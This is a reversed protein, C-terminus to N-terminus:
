RVIVRHTKFSNENKIEIFYMGSKLSLKSLEIIKGNQLNEYIVQGKSSLIRLEFVENNLGTVHLYGSSSVPNPSITLKANTSSGEITISKTESYEFSGDFDVQKLRYYYIGEVLGEDVYNYSITNTSHGNGDVIEIVTWTLADVSRQVEFYDNNIESATIWKLLVSHNNIADLTFSILEIPLLGSRNEESYDEIEGSGFNLCNNSSTFATESVVARIKYSAIAGNPITVPVAVEVVTNATVVLDSGTYFQDIADDFSGNDDWDFWLGYYVQKNDTNSNLLLNFNHTEGPYIYDVSPAILGDDEMDMDANSNSEESCEEDPKLPGLWVFDSSPTSPIVTIASSCNSTLDGRDVGDIHLLYDEVEGGIALAISREDVATNIDDSLSTSMIRFRAFTPGSIIDTGCSLGSLDWILSFAARLSSNRATSGLEKSSFELSEFIGNQNLDIWAYLYVNQPSLNTYDLSVDLTSDATIIFPYYPLGDEDDIGNGDDGSNGEYGADSTVQDLGNLETDILSGLYFLSDYTHAASLTGYSNPADGFDCNSVVVSVDDLAQCGNGNTVTVSYLTTVVPSVLINETTEGTSWLYTGGGSATLTVSQGICINEDQGANALPNMNVDVSVNVQETRVCGNMTVTLTYTLDVPPTTVPNSSTNDDLFLNPTWLYTAGVPGSPSGGLTVSGGQCVPRDGGGDAFVAETIIIDQTYNESCGDQTVTLTITKTGASAWSVTESANSSSAISADGSFTWAYTAGIIAPNATILISELACRTAPADIGSVIVLCLVDIIVEATDTLGGADTIIYYFTDLGVYGNAPTYNIFDDTSDAPTGNNNIVIIGGQTSSNNSVVASNSGASSILINSEADSDGIGLDLVDIAIAVDKNTSIVDDIAIPPTNCAGFDLSDLYAATAAQGVPSVVNPVGNADVGGTLTDNQIDATTFGGAAELADPCGDGDSDLDLYDPIGDNDTDLVCPVEFLVDTYDGIGFGSNDFEKKWNMDIVSVDDYIAIATARPDSSSAVSGLFQIYIGNMSETLFTSPHLHTAFVESAVFQVGGTGDIDRVALGYDIVAPTTTGVEFFELRLGAYEGINQIGLLNAGIRTSSWNITGVGGVPLSTVTIRLDYLTGLYDISNAYTVTQGVGSGIITPATITTHIKALEGVGPYILADLSDGSTNCFEDVDLIGDNDDDLDCVDSVGDSDTDLNGSAVPDCPDTSGTCDVSQTAAEQSDGIGQTPGASPTGDVNSSTGLNDQVPGATGTYVAGTNGGDITSTVLDAFIYTGGGEIADPCGDGDSDLDLYDATGDGDTDACAMVQVEAISLIRAAGELRVVVTDGVIPTPLTITTSAGASGQHNYTFVVDGNSDKVEVIFDDLRNSCCDTRNWVVIENISHSADLALKWWPDDTIQTHTVSNGGYAGDTNGDNARDVSGGWGTSIQTATGSTAVNTASCEETDLIGDNDDDLDCIDSVGDSDTDLNGSAM